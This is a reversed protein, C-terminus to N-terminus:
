FSYPPDLITFDVVAACEVWGIDRLTPSISCILSGSKKRKKELFSLTNRYEGEEGTAVAHCHM